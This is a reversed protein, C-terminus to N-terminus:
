SQLDEIEAASLLEDAYAQSKVGDLAGGRLLDLDRKQRSLERQVVEHGLIAAEASREPDIDLLRIAAQDAANYACRAAWAAEQPLPDLLCRIAYALSSLADEALAHDVVWKADPDPLLEMVEELRSSWADLDIDSSSLSAWLEHAIQRPRAQATCDKAFREYNSLQRTAAASAFAIRAREPLTDLDIVLQAEHFDYM